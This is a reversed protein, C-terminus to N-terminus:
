FDLGLLNLTKLVLLARKKYKLMPVSSEEMIRQLWELM